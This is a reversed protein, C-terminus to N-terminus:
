VCVVEDFLQIPEHNDGNHVNVVKLQTRIRPTEQHTTSLAIPDRQVIPKTVNQHQENVEGRQTADTNPANVHEDGMHQM